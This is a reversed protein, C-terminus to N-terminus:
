VLLEVIMYILPLRFYHNYWMLLSSQILFLRLCRRAFFQTGRKVLMAFYHSKLHYFTGRLGYYPARNAEAQFQRLTEECSFPPRCKGVFNRMYEAPFEDAEQM